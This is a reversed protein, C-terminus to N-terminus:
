SVEGCEDCDLSCRLTGDEEDIFECDIAARYADEASAHHMEMTGDEDLKYGCRAIAIFCPGHLQRPVPSDAGNAARWAPATAYQPAAARAEEGGRFHPVGDGHETAQGDAHVLEWCTYTLATTGAPATKTSM